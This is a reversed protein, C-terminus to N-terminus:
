QKRSGRDVRSESVSSTRGAELMEELWERELKATGANFSGGLMKLSERAKERAGETDGGALLIAAQARLPLSKDMVKGPKAKSFLARAKDADHRFYAHFFAAELLVQSRMMEPVNEAALARELLAGAEDVRGLDLAHYHATSSAGADDLSGDAPSLSRRIMEKDWDRPRVGAMSAGSLAGIACWREAEPGGTLLMKIRAGDSVFGGMRNPMLTVVGILLSAVAITSLIIGVSPPAAFLLGFTAVTLLLSAVPGGAVYVTTRRTLDRSDTPVTGGLGGALMLSRNLGLRIGGETSYLKFPGAIFILFRFGVLKGGVVHGAEHFALVFILSLVLSPILVWPSVSAEGFTIGFLGLLPDSGWGVLGGLVLLAIFKLATGVKSKKTGSKERSERTAM